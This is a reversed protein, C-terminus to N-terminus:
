MLLTSSLAVTKAVIQQPAVITKNGVVSGVVRGCRPPLHCSAHVYGDRGAGSHHHNGVLAIIALKADEIGEGGGRM